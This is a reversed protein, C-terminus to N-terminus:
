ADKRDSGAGRGRPPTAEVGVISLFQPRKRFYLADEKASGLMPQKLIPHRATDAQKSDDGAKSVDSAAEAVARLSGRSWPNNRLNDTSVSTREPLRPESSAAAPAVDDAAAVSSQPPSDVSPGAAPLEGSDRDAPLEGDDAGARNVAAVEDRDVNAVPANEEEDSEEGKKSRLYLTGGGFLLVWPWPSGFSKQPQTYSNAIKQDTKISHEDASSENEQQGVEQIDSQPFQKHLPAVRANRSPCSISIPTTVFVRPSPNSSANLSQKGLSFKQVANVKKITALSGNSEDLVPSHSSISSMIPLTQIESLTPPLSFVTEPAQELHMAAPRSLNAETAPVNFQEQPSVIPESSVTFNEQAYVQPIAIPLPYVPDSHVPQFNVPSAFPDMPCFGDTAFEQVGQNPTTIPNIPNVKPLSSLTRHLIYAGSLALMAITAVKVVKWLLSDAPKNVPKTASLTTDEKAVLQVPQESQLPDTSLPQKEIAAPAAALVADDTVAPMEQMATTPASHTQGEDSLLDPQAQPHSPLDANMGEESSTESQAPQPAPKEQSVIQGIAHDLAHHHRALLKVHKAQFQKLLTEAKSMDISSSVAKHYILGLLQHLESHSQLDNQRGSILGVMRALNNILRVNATSLHKANALLFLMLSLEARAKTRSSQFPFLTSILNGKSDVSLCRAHNLRQVKQNFDAATACTFAHAAHTASTLSPM